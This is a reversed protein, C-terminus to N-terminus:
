APDPLLAPWERTNRAPDVIATGEGRLEDARTGYLTRLRDPTLGSSPGDFVVVGGRLAITRPCYRIAFEVQHLSVIVTVGRSQNIEVLNEMVRRSSEPDLSAIPEDALIVRADQVLARAITARQQQGGSLTSTRQWAHDELGVSQLAEYARRQTAPDFRGTLTRWAPLAHLAGTMVNTMLPLRGVLNFQQFVFGVGSRIRRVDSALRGAAQVLDGHVAVHSPSGRDAVALGAIQRLLTSKGSGSAGILAVMGGNPVDISVNHLARRHGDFTKCLTRVEIASHKM